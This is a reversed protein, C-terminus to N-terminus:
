DVVRRALQEAWGSISENVEILPDLMNCVAHGFALLLVYSQGGFARWDDFVHFETTVDTGEDVLVYLDHLEEEIRPVVVLLEHQLLDIRVEVHM